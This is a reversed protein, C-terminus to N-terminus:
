RVVEAADIKGDADLDLGRVPVAWSAEGTYNALVDAWYRTLAIIAGKTGVHRNGAIVVLCKQKDFPNPIKAIVAEREGTIRREGGVLGAWYNREDFRLPLHRNVDATLLNTGPGGVLVLNNREEKESKIDVDLKVPFGEPPDFYQALFFALQVAYHGDRAVTHNPGHPEPSGVVVLGTFRGDQLFPEWFQRLRAPPQRRAPLEVGGGPLEVGFAPACPEYYSATGGAVDRSQRVRILGARKLQRTYYYVKQRYLGLERAVHAPYSPTEAFARLIRWALPSLVARLNAPSDFLLIDKGWMGQREERVLLARHTKM